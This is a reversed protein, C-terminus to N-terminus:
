GSVGAYDDVLDNYKTGGKLGCTNWWSISARKQPMLIISGSIQAFRSETTYM